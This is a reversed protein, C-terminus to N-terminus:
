SAVERDIYREVKWGTRAALEYQSGKWRRAVAEREARTTHLYTDGALIREVVVPDVQDHKHVDARALSPRYSPDDIRDDDWCLPPLYGLKKARRACEQNRWHTPVTMSLQEYARKIAQVVDVHVHGYRNLIVNKSINKAGGSAAAIEPHTHGLALLAQVRRVTGTADIKARQGRLIRLSTEKRKRVHAARCPECYNRDTFAHAIYGANTGHRPDDPTV